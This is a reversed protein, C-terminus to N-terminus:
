FDADRIERTRHRRGLNRPVQSIGQRTEAGFLVSCQEALGIRLSVDHREGDALVEASRDRRVVRLWEESDCAGRHVLACLPAFERLHGPCLAEMIGVNDVGIGMCELLASIERVFETGESAEMMTAEPLVAKARVAAAVSVDSVHETWRIGSRSSGGYSERFLEWARVLRSGRTM